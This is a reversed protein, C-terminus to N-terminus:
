LPVEGAALSGSVLAIVADVRRVGVLEEPRYRPLEFARELVVTLEMLRLSDFGLDEVLRHEDSLEAPPEPATALVIRRVKDATTTGAVATM